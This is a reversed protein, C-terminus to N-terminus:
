LRCAKGRLPLIQQRLQQERRQRFATEPSASTLSFTINVLNLTGIEIEKGPRDTVIEEATMGKNYRVAVEQPSGTAGLDFGDSSENMMQQWLDFM